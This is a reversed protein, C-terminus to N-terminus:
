LVTVQDKFFLPFLSQSFQGLTFSTTSQFYVQGYPIKRCCCSFLAIIPVLQKPIYMHTHICRYMNICIYKCVYTDKYVYTYVYVYIYMYM